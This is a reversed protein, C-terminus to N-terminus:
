NAFDSSLITKEGSKTRTIKFHLNSLYLEELQDLNKLFIGKIIDNHLFEKLVDYFVVMLKDFQEFKPYTIDTNYNLFNGGRTTKIFNRPYSLFDLSSSTSFKRFVSAYSLDIRSFKEWEEFLASINSIWQHPFGDLCYECWECRLKFEEFLKDLIERYNDSFYIFPIIFNHILIKKLNKLSVLQKLFSNRICSNYPNPSKSQEKSTSIYLMFYELLKGNKKLVAKLFACYLDLIIAWSYKKEYNLVISLKELNLYNVSYETNSTFIPIEQINDTIVAVDSQMFLAEVERMNAESQEIIALDNFMSFVLPLVVKLTKGLNIEIELNKLLNLNIISNFNIMYKSLENEYSVIGEYTNDNIIKVILTTLTLKVNPAEYRRKKLVVDPYLNYHGKQYNSDFLSNFVIKEFKQLKNITRSYITLHDIQRLFKLESSTLYGFYFALDLNLELSTINKITSDGMTSLVYLSDFSHVRIPVSKLLILPLEANQSPAWWEILNDMENNSYIRKIYKNKSKLLEYGIVDLKIITVKSNADRFNQRFRYANKDCPHWAKDVLLINDFILGNCISNFFKNTVSLSLQDRIPLFDLTTELIEKPFSELTWTM